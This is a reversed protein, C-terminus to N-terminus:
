KQCVVMGAAFARKKENSRPGWIASVPVSEAGKRFDATEVVANYMGWVTKATKPFEDNHKEYLETAASRLTYARQCYYEWSAASETAEDYLATITKADEETFDDLLSAKKPKKPLPYTAELMYEFDNKKLVTKAMVEFMALTSNKASIMKKVLNVRAEFAGQLGAVHELSVSVLSQKLGTVLTNNCVVRVPTFAIKMSTGGDRTDTVLFYLKLDEGKIKHGGADLTIFMTKGMDLAGVTECPWDENLVDLAKAIETNQLIGYNPSAFGFFRHEPDDVTPERLIMAKNPVKVLQTGLPTDVEGSVPALFIKFDLKAKKVAKSCLTINPDSTGIEHWAPGTRGFFRDGFLNHM